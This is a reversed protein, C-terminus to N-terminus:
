ESRKNVVPLKVIFCHGDKDIEYILEGHHQVMIRKSVSLGLSSNDPSVYFPEFIKDEQGPPVGPGNDYIRIWLMGEELKSSVKVKPETTSGMSEISHAIVNLLVESIQIRNGHLVTSEFGNESEAFDFQVKRRHLLCLNKVDDILDVFHFESFEERASDQSLLTLSKVLQDMKMITRDATQLHQNVMEGDVNKESLLSQIIMCNGKLITLPNKIEHAIEGALVGISALKSFHILRDREQQQLKRLEIEESIDVSVACVGIIKGTADRFPFRVTHFISYNTADWYIKEEFSHGKGTTLVRHDHENIMRTMERNLYDETRKGLINNTKLLSHFGQNGYIYKGELDKIFVIGPLLDLISRYLYRESTVLKELKVQETIDRFTTIGGVTAEGSRIPNGNVSIIIGEPHASNKCMIRYDYYEEGNLSKIMPLDEYRLYSETKIDFLKYRRAWENYDTDDPEDALIRRAAKNWYLFQKTSDAIVVGDVVMDFVAEDSIKKESLIEFLKNM